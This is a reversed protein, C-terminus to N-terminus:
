IGLQENIPKEWDFSRTVELVKTIRRNFQEESLDHESYWENPHKNRTIFVPTWAGWTHGGKIPLRCEYRDLIDLFKGWRIWAYFDDLILTGEGGYGDWWVKGDEPANVKFRDMGASQIAARTKGVGGRGWLVYVRLEREHLMAADRACLFELRDMGKGCRIYHGPFLKALKRVPVGSIIQEGIFDLDSRKGQNSIVGFERFTDPVSSEAKRCYNRAQTPSGRRQEFHAVKDGLLGALAAKANRSNTFEVYGQYHIKETTPCVEKQFCLYRVDGPLIWDDDDPIIKELFSTFVYNRIKM